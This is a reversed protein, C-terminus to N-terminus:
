IRVRRFLKRRFKFVIFIAIILVAIIVAVITFRESFNYLSPLNNGIAKGAFYYVLNQVISSVVIVLSPVLGKLGMVGAIFLCVTNVGPLFKCIALAPTGYKRMYLGAVRQNRKPFVKRVYKNKLIPKGIKRSIYFVLLSSFVTGIIYPIIAAPGAIIGTVALGGLVLLLIDSPYPPFIQQLCASIFCFLIIGWVPFDHIRMMINNIFENM